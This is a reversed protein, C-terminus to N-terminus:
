KYEIVFIPAHRHLFLILSRTFTCVMRERISGSCVPRLKFPSPVWHIQEKGKLIAVDHHAPGAAQSPISSKHVSPTRSHKSRRTSGSGSRSSYSSKPISSGTYSSGTYSSGTHSSGTNSSGTYSSGTHSSRTHSSGTYSSSSSM